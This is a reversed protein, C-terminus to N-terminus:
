ISLMIENSKILATVPTNLSLKLQEVANTNIISSINGLTTKVTLTSLILGKNLEIIPGTFSNQLSTNEAIGTAIIVAAEKFLVTVNNSIKIFSDRDNKLLISTIISNNVNIKVLCISGSSRIAVIEGKITNM